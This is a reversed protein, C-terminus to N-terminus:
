VQSTRRHFQNIQGLPFIAQALRQLSSTQDRLIDGEMLPDQALHQLPGASHIKIQRRGEESLADVAQQAIGGTHLIRVPFGLRM